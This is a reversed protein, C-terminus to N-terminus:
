PPSPVPLTPGSDRSGQFILPSTMGEGPLVIWFVAGNDNRAHLTGGSRELLRACLSLGLGMGNEKTTFFPRFLNKLVEDSLGPGNDAIEIINVTDQSFTRIPIRKRDHRCESLADVANRLLNHIVQELEIAGVVSKPSPTAFDMSVEINQESLKVRLLEVMNVIFPNLEQLMPQIDNGVIYDRMRHLIKGARQAERVNAALAQKLSGDRNGAEGKELLILGAQSQSLLATLPQTLEHAIGSALEGVANVRLAQSLRNEHRLSDMQRRVSQEAERAQALAARQNVLLHFAYLGALGLISLPVIMRWDLVEGLTVRKELHSHFQADDDPHLPTRTLDVSFWPLVKQLFGHDQPNAMYILRNGMRLQYEINEPVHISQVAKAADYVAVIAAPTQRNMFKMAFVVHGAFQPLPRAVIDGEPQREVAGMITQLDAEEPAASMSPVSITESLESQGPKAEYLRISNCYPNTKLIGMAIQRFSPHTSDDPLQLVPQLLTLSTRIEAARASLETTLVLRKFAFDDRLQIVSIAAVIAIVVLEIAIWQVLFARISYPKVM